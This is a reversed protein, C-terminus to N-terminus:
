KTYFLSTQLRLAWGGPSWLGPQDPSDHQHSVFFWSIIKVIWTYSESIMLVDSARSQLVAALENLSSAMSLSQYLHMSRPNRITPRFTQSNAKVSHLINFSSQRGKKKKISIAAIVRISFSVLRSQKHIRTSNNISVNVRTVTNFAPKKVIVFTHRSHQQAILFARFHPPFEHEATM